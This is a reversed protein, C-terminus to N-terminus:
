FSTSIISNNNIHGLEIYSKLKELDNNKYSHDINKKRWQLLSCFHPQNPPLAKKQGWQHAVVLYLIKTVPESYGNAVCINQTIRERSFRM